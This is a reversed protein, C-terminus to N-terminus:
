GMFRENVGDMNEERVNTKSWGGKRPMIERLLFIVLSFVINQVYFPLIYLLVCKCRLARGEFIQMMM